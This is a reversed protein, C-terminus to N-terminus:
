LPEVGEPPESAVGAVHTISWMALSKLVPALDRGKDTLVYGHRAPREQYPVREVIGAEELRKLRDALINTAIGEDSELLEAYRSKQFMMLDRVVLLTWKDGFLDLANAIPCPSRM